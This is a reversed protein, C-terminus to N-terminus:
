ASLHSNKKLFCQGWWKRTNNVRHKKSLNEYNWPKYIGLDKIHKLEIKYTTVLLPNSKNKQRYIDNRQWWKNLLSDNQWYVKSTKDVFLQNYIHQNIELIRRRYSQGLLAMVTSNSNGYSQLLSQLQTNQYAM